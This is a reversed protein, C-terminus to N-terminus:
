FFDELKCTSIGREIKYRDNKSMKSFLSDKKPQSQKVQKRNRRNGITQSDFYVDWLDQVEESIKNIKYKDLFSNHTITFKDMGLYNGNGLWVKSGNVVAVPSDPNKNALWRCFMAEIHHRTNINAIIINKFIDPRVFMCLRHYSHIVERTQKYYKKELYNKGTFIDDISKCSVLTKVLEIPDNDAHKLALDIFNIIDPEDRKSINLRSRAENGFMFIALKNIDIYNEFGVKEVREKIGIFEIKKDLEKQNDAYVMSSEPSVKLKICALLVGEVSRKFAIIM